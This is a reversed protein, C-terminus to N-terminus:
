KRLLLAKWNEYFYNLKTEIDNRDFMLTQARLRIYLEDVPKHHSIEVNVGPDALKAPISFYEKIYQKCNNNFLLDQDQIYGSFFNTQSNHLKM